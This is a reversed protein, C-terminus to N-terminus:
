EKKCEEERWKMGYNVGTFFAAVLGIILGIFYGLYFDM